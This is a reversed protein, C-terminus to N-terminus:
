FDSHAPCEALVIPTKLLDICAKLVQKWPPPPDGPALVGSILSQIRLLHIYKERTDPTLSRLDLCLAAM